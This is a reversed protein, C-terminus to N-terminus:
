TTQPDEETVGDTRGETWGNTWGDTLIDTVGDKRGQHGKDKLGDTWSNM